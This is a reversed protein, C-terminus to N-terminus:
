LRCVLDFRSQLESTHEESRLRAISGPAIEDDTRVRFPAVDQDIRRAEGRGQHPADALESADARHEQRVPVIDGVMRLERALEPAEADHMAGVPGGPEAGFPDDFAFLFDPEVSVQ